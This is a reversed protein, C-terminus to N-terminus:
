MADSIKFESNTLLSEGFVEKQIRMFDPHSVGGKELAEFDAIVTGEWTNGNKFKFGKHKKYIAKAAEYKGILLLAHALNTHLAVTDSKNEPLYGIVKNLVIPVESVKDTALM